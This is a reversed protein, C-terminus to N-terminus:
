EVGRRGLAAHSGQAPGAAGQPAWGCEGPWTPLLARLGGQLIKAGRKRPCFQPQFLSVVWPALLFEMSMKWPHQLQSLLLSSQVLPSPRPGVEPGPHGPPGRGPGPCQLSAPNRGVQAQGPPSRKGVAQSLPRGWSLPRGVRQPVTGLCHSDGAEPAKLFSLSYCSGRRAM